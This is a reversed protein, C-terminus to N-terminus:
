PLYSWERSITIIEDQLCKHKLINTNADEMINTNQHTSQKM